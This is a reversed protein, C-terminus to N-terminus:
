NIFLLLWVGLFLFLSLLLIITYTSYKYYNKKGYIIQFIHKLMWILTFCPNESTKYSENNEWEILILLFIRLFEAEIRIIRKVTLVKIM